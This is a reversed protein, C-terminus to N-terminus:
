VAVVMLAVVAITCVMQMVLGPLRNRGASEEPIAKPEPAAEGSREVITETANNNTTGAATEDADVVVDHETEGFTTEIWGRIDAIAEDNLVPTASQTVDHSNHTMIIETYNSAVHPMREQAESPLITNDGLSAILLVPKKTITDTLPTDLIKNQVNTVAQAWDTTIHTRILARLTTNYRMTIWSRTHFNSLGMGIEALEIGLYQQFTGANEVFAESLTGGVHGWDLFPGNLIYGDFPEEQKDEKLMMVYNLAVLTGTSHVHALLQTYNKANRILELTLDIEQAYLDFNEISHGLRFTDEDLFRRTRGCWRPDLTYLDYGMDQYMQLVQPHGFSESRGPFYLVAKDNAPNTNYALSALTDTDNGVQFLTETLNMNRQDEETFIPTTSRWLSVNLSYGDQSLLPLDIWRDFENPTDVTARILQQNRLVDVDQLLIEIQSVTGNQYAVMGIEYWEPENTNAQVGFDFRSLVRDGHLRIPPNGADLATVVVQTDAAGVLDANEVGMAAGNIRILVWEWDFETVVRTWELLQELTENNDATQLVREFENDHTSAVRPVFLCGFSVYICTWIPVLRM